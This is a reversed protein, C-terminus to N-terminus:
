HGGRKWRVKPQVQQALREALAGSPRIRKIAHAEHQLNLAAKATLKRRPSTMRTLQVARKRMPLRYGIRLGSVSDENGAIIRRPVDANYAAASVHDM